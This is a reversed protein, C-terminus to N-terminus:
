FHNETEDTTDTQSLQTDVQGAPPQSYVERPKAGSGPGIVGREELMDLLRAARAYGVKLKRQLYSASAKGASIVAERADEYLDDDDGDSDNGISGAFMADPNNEPMLNIESPVEDQYQKAIHSVVQKVETESIFASQIRVPEPRDSSLNLMDGSGLLKEAGAMDLITRSDIQSAVKLAVRSPINAKILGTIVEVSPRQTSVILHIGVARSMQALRVIGAELERPYLAMIDALEDIIIVIYPMLDFGEDTKAQTSNTLAHYSQIDRVANKELIDYRREM